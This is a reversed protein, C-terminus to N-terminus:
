GLAKPQFLGGLERNLLPSDYMAFRDLPTVFIADSKM